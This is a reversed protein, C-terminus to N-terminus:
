ADTDTRNIALTKFFGGYLKAAEYIESDSVERNQIAYVLFGKSMDVICDIHCHRVDGGPMNVDMFVADDPMEVVFTEDPNFVVVQM